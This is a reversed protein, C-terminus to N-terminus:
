LYDVEGKYTNGLNAIKADSIITHLLGINYDSTARNYHITHIYLNHADQTSFRLEATGDEYAFVTLVGPAGDNWIYKHSGYRMNSQLRLQAQTIRLIDAMNAWIPGKHEYPYVSITQTIGGPTKYVKINDSGSSEEVANNLVRYSYNNYSEFHSSENLRALPFITPVIYNAIIDEIGRKGIGREGDERVLLTIVYQTNPENPLAFSIDNAVFIPAEKTKMTSWRGNVINDRKFTSGDISSIDFQDQNMHSWKEQLASRVYGQKLENYPKGLYQASQEYPHNDVFLSTYIFPHNFTYVLTNTDKVDPIPVSQTGGKFAPFPLTYSLGGKDTHMHVETVANYQARWMSYNLNRRQEANMEDVRYLLRTADSIDAASTANYIKESLISDMLDNKYFDASSHKVKANYGPLENANSCGSLCLVAILGGFLLSKRFM